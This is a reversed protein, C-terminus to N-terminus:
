CTYVDDAEKVLESGDHERQISVNEDPAKHALALCVNHTQTNTNCALCHRIRPPTVVMMMMTRSRVCIEDGGLEISLAWRALEDRRARWSAAAGPLTLSAPRAEHASESARGARGWGFRAHTATEEM